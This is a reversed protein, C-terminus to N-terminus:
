RACRAGQFSTSQALSIAESTTGNDMRWAGRGDASRLELTPSGTWTHPEADVSALGGRQACFAAAAYWNLHTMAQNDKGSPPSDGQWDALYQADGRGTGRVATPKWEPNDQLWRAFGGYTIRASRRRPREPRTPRPAVPPAVVPHELSPAPGTWPIIWEEVSAVCGECPTNACIWPESGCSGAYGLVEYRGPALREVPMAVEPKVQLTVREGATLSVEHIPTQPLNLPVAQPGDGPMMRVTQSHQGCWAPCREDVCDSWSCDPGILVEVEYAGMSLPSSVFRGDDSVEFKVGELRLAVNTSPDAVLMLARPPTPGSGTGLAVWSLLGLLIVGVVIGIRRALPDIGPQRSGQPGPPELGDSDDDGREMWTPDSTPVDPMVSPEVEAMVDEPVPALTLGVLPGSPLDFALLRRRAERM